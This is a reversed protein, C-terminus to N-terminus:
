FNADGGPPARGSLLIASRAFKKGNTRDGAVVRMPSFSPPKPKPLRAFIGTDPPEDPDNTHEAFGDFTPISFNCTSSSETIEITEIAPSLELVENMSPAKVPLIEATPEYWDEPCPAWESMSDMSVTLPEPNEADWRALAEKFADISEFDDPDPPEDVSEIQFGLLSLQGDADTQYHIIEPKPPSYRALFSDSFSVGPSNEIPEQVQVEIPEQHQIKIPEQIIRASSKFLVLLEHAISNRYVSRPNKDAPAIASQSLKSESELRGRDGGGRNPPQEDNLIAIPAQLTTNPSNARCLYGTIRGYELDQCQIEAEDVQEVEAGPSVELPLRRSHRGYIDDFFGDENSAWEGAIEDDSEPSLPAIDPSVELLQLLPPQVGAIADIWSQRCRRDGAPLLNLERGIEKLQKFTKSQLQELKYM